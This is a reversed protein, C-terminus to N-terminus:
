AEATAGEAATEAEKRPAVVSVVSTDADGLIQVGEPAIAQLDRIHLTQGLELASVDITFHEPMAEPKGKLPLTHVNIQIKGGGIKVGPCEGELHIPVEMEVVEDTSFLQFDAHIVRDTVPDFQVDKIFSRVSKGDPYQLDIMHSESSHVLKNLSIEEVSIAVTAEGKHYVVAPVQGLRRLKAAGNKKVERLNVSLARTEM